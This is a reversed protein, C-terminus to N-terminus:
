FVEQPLSIQNGNKDVKIKYPIGEIYITIYGEEENSGGKLSSLFSKSMSQLNSPKTNKKMNEYKLVNTKYTAFM